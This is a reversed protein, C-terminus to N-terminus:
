EVGDRKRRVLARVALAVFLALFTAVVVFSMCHYNLRGDTLFAVGERLNWIGFSANALIMVAFLALYTAPKQNIGFYADGAVNVVVSVTIALCIGIFSGTLNDAWELGTAASFMGSLFLYSVLTWFAARYSRCRVMMQREDYKPTRHRSKM